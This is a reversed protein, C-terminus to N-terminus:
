AAPHGTSAPPTEWTMANAALTRDLLDRQRPDIAAGAVTVLEVTKVPLLPLLGIPYSLDVHATPFVLRAHTGSIVISEQEGRFRYKRVLEVEHVGLDVPPIQGNLEAEIRIRRPKVALKAVGAAADRARMASLDLVELAPFRAATLQAFSAHQTSGHLGVTTWPVARLREIAFVDLWDVHRLARLTALWQLFAEGACDQVELHEVTQWVLGGQPAQYCHRMRAAALFGRRFVVHQKRLYPEAGGLWVREHAHLLGRERATGPNTCQLTIFEGRPDGADQLADAYVLRPADSNPEACVAALLTELHATNPHTRALVAEIPSLDGALPALPPRARVQAAVENFHDLDDLPIVNDRVAQWKEASAVIVSRYRPDDIADLADLLTVDLHAEALFKALVTAIRPDPGRQALTIAHWRVALEHPAQRVIAALIPTVDADSADEIWKAIVGATSRREPVRIRQAVRDILAALEPARHARWAVLLASLCAPWDERHAAAIADALM